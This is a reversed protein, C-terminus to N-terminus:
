YSTNPWCEIGVELRICLGFGSQCDTRPKHFNFTEIGYFVTVPHTGPPCGNVIAVRDEQAYLCFGSLVLGLLFIIKKM